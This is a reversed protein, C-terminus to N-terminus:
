KAGETFLAFRGPGDDDVSAFCGGEVIANFSKGKILKKLKKPVTTNQGSAIGFKLAAV